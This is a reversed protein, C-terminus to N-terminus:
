LEIAAEFARYDQQVDPRDGIVQGQYELWAHSEVKGEVRRLGIRLETAMGQWRLMTWLTLSQRLCNAWPSYRVALRVMALTTKLGDPRPNSPSDSWRRLRQRTWRLGRLHMAIAIWFLLLYATRFQSRAEPSLRWATRLKRLLM